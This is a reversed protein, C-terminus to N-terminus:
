STSNTTSASRRPSAAASTSISCITAVACCCTSAITSASPTPRTRGCRSRPQAVGWSPNRKMCVSKGASRGWPSPPPFARWDGGVIKAKPTRVGPIAAAGGLWRTRAARLVIWSKELASLRARRSYVDYGQKRIRLLIGYYIAMMAWLAPRSTSRVMGLLPASDEYYRNARQWEYAMFKNFGAHEPHSVGARLLEDRTMGFRALDEGPLYVRGMAADEPIDRLINTLQFGIGCKEALELAQESEFGFIHVITLGVVSAVRYCYRYLEDFTEYRQPELDSAIGEILDFFYEHPIAYKDVTARFAPLIPDDGFEGALACDLAVRWDALAKRRVEIPPDGEDSIDDSYRMFAYIACM